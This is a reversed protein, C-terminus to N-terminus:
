FFFVENILDQRQSAHQILTHTHTEELTVATEAGCVCESVTFLEARTHTQTHTHTPPKARNVSVCASMLASNNLVDQGRGGGRMVCKNGTRHNQHPEPGLNCEYHNDKLQVHPGCM